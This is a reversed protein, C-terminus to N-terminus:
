TMAAPAFVATSSHRCLTQVLRHPTETPSATSRVAPQRSCCPSADLFVAHYLHCEASHQLAVHFPQCSVCSWELVGTCRHSVIARHVCDGQYLAEALQVIDKRGLATGLTQLSGPRRLVDDLQSKLDNRACLALAALCAAPLDPPRALTALQNLLFACVGKSNSYTELLAEHPPAPQQRLQQLLTQAAAPTLQGQYNIRSGSATM